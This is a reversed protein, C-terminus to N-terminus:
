QAAMSDNQISKRSTGSSIAAATAARMPLPDEILGPLRNTTNSSSCANRVQNPVASTCAPCSPRKSSTIDIGVTESQIMGIIVFLVATADAPNM